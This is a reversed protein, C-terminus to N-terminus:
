KAIKRKLVLWAGAAMVMVTAVAGFILQGTIDGTQPVDDLGEVKPLTEQKAVYGCTECIYQKLGTETASAKKVIHWELDHKGCDTKLGCDACEHWHEKADMSWKHGFDHKGTAPIKSTYTEGCNKCTVTKVGDTGCTAPKTIKEVWSHNLKAIKETQKEGCISCTRTKQGEAKCTAAKTVKWESWSHNHTMATGCTDCKGDNNGDYHDGTAPIPETKTAGCKTCTYTKVGAKSCTAATTVKGNDWQHGTAAVTRTEEDGCACKRTEIGTETCTPDKTVTWNGYKHNHSVAAGCNDCKGDNNNDQHKGTAPIVDTESTGCKSCTHVQEGAAGCTAAKTVTWASWSHGTAPIARTEKAGCACSREKQGNETCTADKTVKWEGFTCTHVPANITVKGSYVEFNLDERNQNSIYSVDATVDYKGAAANDAVEFTAVFEVKDVNVPSAYNVKGNSVNGNAGSINILKLVSENYSIKLLFNAFSGEVTYKVDITKGAMTTVNEVHVCTNSAAFVTLPFCAMVLAAILLISLLRKM